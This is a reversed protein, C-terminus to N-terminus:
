YFVIVFAFLGEIFFGHFKLKERNILIIFKL